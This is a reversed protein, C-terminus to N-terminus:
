VEISRRHMCDQLEHMWSASQGTQTSPRWMREVDNVSIGPRALPSPQSGRSELCWERSSSTNSLAKSERVENYCPGAASLSASSQRVSHAFERQGFSNAGVPTNGATESSGQLADHMDSLGLQFNDEAQAQADSGATGSAM